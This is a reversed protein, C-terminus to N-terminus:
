INYWLNRLLFDCLNGNERESASNYMSRPAFFPSIHSKKVFNISEKQSHPVWQASERM